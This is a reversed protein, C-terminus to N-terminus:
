GNGFTNYYGEDNLRRVSILNFHIDPVHRVDKLILRAGKNTELHIDGMSAVKSYGKNGMKVVGFNGLM